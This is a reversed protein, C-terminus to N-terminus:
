LKMKALKYDIIENIDKLSLSLGEWTNGKDSRPDVHLLEQIDETSLGDVYHEFIFLSIDERVFAPHISKITNQDM